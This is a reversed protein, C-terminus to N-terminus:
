VVGGMKETKKDKQWKKDKEKTKNCFVINEQYSGVISLSELYM